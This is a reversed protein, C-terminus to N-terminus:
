SISALKSCYGGKGGKNIPAVLSSPSIGYTNEREFDLFSEREKNRFVGFLEATFKISEENIHVGIRGKNLHFLFDKPVHLLKAFDMVEIGVVEGKDNLDLILNNVLISEKYNRKMPRGYFIDEVSDYDVKAKIIKM